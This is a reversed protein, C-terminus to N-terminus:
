ISKQIFVSVLLPNFLSLTSSVATSNRGCFKGAGNKRFPVRLAVYTGPWAKLCKAGGERMMQWKGRGEMWLPRGEQTGNVGRSFDYFSSTRTTRPNMCTSKRTQRMWSFDSEVLQAELYERAAKAQSEEAEEIEM